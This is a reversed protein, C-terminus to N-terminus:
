VTPLNLAKKIAQEILHRSTDFAGAPLVAGCAKDLEDKIKICAQLLEPASAILQRDADRLRTDSQLIKFGEDDLLFPPLWKWPAVSGKFEYKNM